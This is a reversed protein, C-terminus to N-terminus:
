IAAADAVGCSARSPAVPEVRLRRALTGDVGDIFIAVGLWVFMQPWDTRVAALLALLACGAGCATFIHVAFAATAQRPAPRGQPLSPEM